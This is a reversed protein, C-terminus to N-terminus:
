DTDQAWSTPHDWACTRCRIQGRASTLRAECVRAGDAYEPFHQREGAQRVLAPLLRM